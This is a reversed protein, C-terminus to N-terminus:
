FNKDEGHKKLDEAEKNKLQYYNIISYLSYFILGFGMKKAEVFDLPSNKEQSGIIYIIGIILFAISIKFKKNSAKPRPSKLNPSNLITILIPILPLPFLFLTVAFVIIAKYEGIHRNKGLFHGAFFAVAIALFFEIETFEKFGGIFKM